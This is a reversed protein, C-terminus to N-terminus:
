DMKIMVRTKRFNKGSFRYIFPGSGVPRGYDNKGDWHTSHSGAPIINEPTILRRILRGQMNFISLSVRSKEPLEFRIATIGRFPNPYNPMLRYKLPLRPMPMVQVVPSVIEAVNDFDFAELRYEYMVNNHVDDDVYLYDRSGHSVGSEAGPIIDPNIRIWGTDIAAIKKSKYLAVAPSESSDARSSLSDFYSPQIRRHIFYGLNEQESETRWYITDCGDGPLAGFSSMQVALSIDSSIYISTTDCFISDIQIILEHNARNYYANYQYGELLTATDSATYAHVYQPKTAAYYNTIRFAPNFRCTDGHAPIRFNVTNNEAEICYAGEQENFGDQNLDGEEANVGSLLTGTNMHLADGGHMGIYQVGNGVSDIFLNDMNTHQMDLYVVTELKSSNWIEPLSSEFFGVGARYQDSISFLTDSDFPQPHYGDANKMTLWSVSYDPFDDSYLVGGRKEQRNLYVSSYSQDDMYWGYILEEP